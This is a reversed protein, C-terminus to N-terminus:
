LPNPRISRKGNKILRYVFRKESQKPIIRMPESVSIPILQLLESKKPIFEQGISEGPICQEFNRYEVEM